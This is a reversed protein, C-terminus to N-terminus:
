CNGDLCLEITSADTRPYRRSTCRTGDVAGTQDNYRGTCDPPPGHGQAPCTQNGDYDIWVRLPASVGTNGVRDTAQVAICAWGPPPSGAGRSTSGGIHNAYADFQNGFCRQGRSEIPELSWIAPLKPGYSIALTPEEARCLLPPLDVEDGFTCRPNGALAPDLTFDAAGQPLVAGLRVKLVQRSTTPPATTPVLTPNIQDCVGDGDSDVTLPQTTDNLIYADIRQPDITALPAVQLFRAGNVDDEARARLQFVQGVACNDDPMNGPITHDGLPDFAWSCQLSSRRRSVRIEPPDLDLLPPQNDIGFSYALSTENGLSDAARFSVTPYVICYTGPRPLGGSLLGCHTLQATDFPASYIGGGRPQLNLTFQPTAQDGILAIVSTDLVGAGDTVHASVEIVRGVVDAPAPTTNEIIPGNEDVVFKATAVTRTGNANRAAVTLLQEGKLPPDYGRFDVLTQYSNPVGTPQLDLARGAVAAELPLMTPELPTSDVVVSVVVSGKHQSGPQPTVITVAPGSDVTVSIAASAFDGGTTAATVTLTYAGGSLGSLDLLGTYQADAVPGSLTGATLAPSGAAAGDRTLAFRISSPELIGAATTIRARVQPASTATLVTGDAPGRIEVVPAVGMVGADFGSGSSSGSGGSGALSPPAYPLAPDSSGCSIGVVSLTLLVALAPFRRPLRAGRHAAAKRSVLRNM